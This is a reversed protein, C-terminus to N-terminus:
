FSKQKADIWAYSDKYNSPSFKADEQIAQATAKQMRRYDGSMEADNAMVTRRLALLGEDKSKIDVPIQAGESTLPMKEVNEAAKPFDQAGRAISEKVRGRPGLFEHMWSSGRKAATLAAEIPALRLGGVVGGVAKGADKHEPGAFEEGVIAGLGPGLAGTALDHLAEVYPRKTTAFRMINPM